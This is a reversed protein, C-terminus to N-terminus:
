VTTLPHSSKAARFRLAVYTLFSMLFIAGVNMLLTLVRKMVLASSSDNGVAVVLGLWAPVVAIQAAAALGIMERRGVDDAAALAAAVGVGSSVFLSAVTELFQDYGIPPGVLWGSVASGLGTVALGVFLAIAARRVLPWEGTRAGFSIGLVIPLLPLFMLGAIILLVNNKLLGFGLLPGGLFMRGLSGRTIHSFQWCEQLLDWGPEVLPSTLNVAHEKSIISRPQRINITFERRDFFPAAMLSDVFAKATPTATAMDVAERAKVAGNRDRIELSFVTVEDIGADYALQAVAAAKGTPANVRILRM